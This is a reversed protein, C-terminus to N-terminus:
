AFAEILEDFEADELGSGEVGLWDLSPLSMMRAFTVRREDFMPDPEYGAPADREPGPPDRSLCPM